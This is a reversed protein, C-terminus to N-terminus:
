RGPRVAVPLLNPTWLPRADIFSGTQPADIIKGHGVYMAVHYITRPDTLDSAYFLLDGARAHDLPVERGADYQDNAVRPIAVGAHAYSSSTLGSCDYSKPGVGGWQYPKGKQHKAFSVAALAVPNETTGPRSLLSGALQTVQKAIAQQHETGNAEADSCAPTGSLGVATWTSRGVFGTVTLHADAQATQVADTTGSEFQGDVDIGLATQLVTVALGTSGQQLHACNRSVGTGQAKQGCAALAQTPPLAAWTAADVAGTVALAHRRQWTKVADTTLPGFDGDPTTNM